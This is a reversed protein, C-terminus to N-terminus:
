AYTRLVQGLRDLVSEDIRVESLSPPIHLTKTKIYM